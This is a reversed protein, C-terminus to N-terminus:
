LTRPKVLELVVETRMRSDMSAGNASPPPLYRRGAPLERENIAEVSLGHLIGARRTVGANDVFTGKITSNGVVMVARAGPKLVRSIESMVRSMDEVYRWFIGAMRGSLRSVESDAALGILREDNVKSMREAGVSSGRIERLEGLKYGLWVLAMRHGRLYDIANLYPPSTVVLDVSCDPLSQLNRADGREVNASGDFSHGMRKEIEAAAKIFGSMVDFDNETGVKHPRSHSVDWALSAGRKKTVIIRSLALRLGDALRGSQGYLLYSLVRLDEKQEKAFWFDVFDSTESDSDVWPLDVGASMLDRAELVLAEAAGRLGAASSSHTWVSSMLVALPDMDFGRARHGAEVAARLVTGSGCMPDLVVKEGRELELAKLALEPAM